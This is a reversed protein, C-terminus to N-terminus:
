IEFHEGFIYSLNNDEAMIEHRLIECNEGVM